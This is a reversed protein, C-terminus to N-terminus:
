RASWPPSDNSPAPESLARGLGEVIKRALVAAALNLAERLQKADNEAWGAFKDTGGGSVFSQNFLEAGDRTRVLRAGAMVGLGLTPNGSSGSTPGLAVTYVRVELVTTIGDNAESRYDPKDDDAAPGRGQLLVVPAGTGARALHLVRDGLAEQIKVEAFASKLAADAKEVEEASQATVAGHIAGGVVLPPAVLVFLLPALPGALASLQLSAGAGALAGKGTAAAGGKPPTRYEVQPAFQASAVGITGLQARIEESSRRTASPGLTACGAQGLLLVALVAICGLKRLKSTRKRSGSKPM